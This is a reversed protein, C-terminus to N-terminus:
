DDQASEPVADAMLAGGSVIFKLGDEVPMPLHIVDEEKVMVVFGSTPNPSTPVFVAVQGRTREDGAIGNVFHNSIFGMAKMGPHPYDVLVTGKFASGGTTGFSTTIQKIFNYIKNVLPVANFLLDIWGSIIKGFINTVLWGIFTVVCLIVLISFGFTYQSKELLSSSRFVFALIKYSFSDMATIAYVLFWITVGIPLVFLLGRIFYRRLNVM